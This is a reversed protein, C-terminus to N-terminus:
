VDDTAVVGPFASSAAVARAVPLENLDICTPALWEDTFTFPAAAAMDEANIFLFPRQHRLALDGFTVGHFVSDNWLSAAVDSRGYSGGFLNLWRGAERLGKKKLADEAKWRLFEQEYRSLGSLGNSAFAAATFSGGSVSSVLDVEGLLSRRAAGTDIMTESLERLVGYSPAAARTGGGSFTLVVFISDTNTATAPFSNFRYRYGTPPSHLEPTNVATQAWACGALLLLGIAAPWVRVGLEESDRVRVCGRTARGSVHRRREGAPFGSSV